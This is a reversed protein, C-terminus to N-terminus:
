EKALAVFTKRVDELTGVAVFMRYQYEGPPLGKVDRVRYVCNWKNVKAEPFRFRGYGPGETGAPPAGVAIVGMAHRGDTTALVVPLAQEGPGDSLPTLKGTSPDFTWFASFAPPMYGTLAEFQAYTHREGEPVTFTVEYKIAHELGRSGISVRKSLAHRSLVTTNTAPNGESKEGPVLWFAMLSRTELTAGEAKLSLLRSSSTPGEGDRRSGAETPNFVEPFFPQGNDLNSASQLQRGHDASDIFEMGDWTLSDIAGATRETTKIVIESKGARARITANGRPQPANASPESPPEATVTLAALAFLASLVESM